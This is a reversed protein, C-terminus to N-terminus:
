VPGARCFRAPAAPFGAPAPRPPEGALERRRPRAEGTTWVNSAQGSRKMATLPVPLILVFAEGGIRYMRDLKRILSQVLATFNVLVIDGAEHGHTDNISKFRDLNLMVLGYAIGLRRHAEIVMRLAQELARRNLAGTLPDCM